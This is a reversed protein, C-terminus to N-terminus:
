PKVQTKVLELLEAKYPDQAVSPLSSLQEAVGEYSASGKYQSDRLLMGFQAVAAAFLSDESPTETLIGAGMPYELLESEEGDPAKYRISLTLYDDSGTSAAEQYKLDAGPVEMASGTLALEYLVTVRHGAGIEGGDKADDAFDEAAMLRNEYGILRYGKVQAPNFEVQLKVDKAVTFLTGGMEEVLVRRAEQVSDIYSYNGNGHDALAEMKNDKINGTGFGMVSLFIGDAKEAEILRTLEGESTIGVNLDGDTALIVRNNGGPIFHKRALEYATTIGKSGATSGGATLEEIAARIQPSEDGTAGDLVVRDSSAYTVISIVDGPRLNETLMIFAQKVLPLKDWSDMSGSVDILFVLNSPPMAEWDAQPAQLGLRLLHTDPNWPCPFLEGTVSFPADEEPAPYDYHFYNLMEEIRVADAPVQVGNNLMRRLNTYSATDVDAAFTSLPTTSVALFRNEQIYNYEETNWNEEPAPFAEAEANSFVGPAMDYAAGGNYGPAYLADKASSCGAVSTLLAMALLLPVLRTRKMKMEEMGQQLPPSLGM